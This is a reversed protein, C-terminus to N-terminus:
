GNAAIAPAAGETMPVELVFTTGIGESSFAITASLQEALLRISRFGLHGDRAPDFGDPLGVGDDEVEIVLDPGERRCSVRLRGAVGAPHAYKMSNTVVESVIVAINFAQRADVECDAGAAFELRTDAGMSLATVLGATVERLYTTINIRENSDPQALQRHLRGISEIQAELGGLFLGIEKGSIPGPRKRLREGHLRVLSAVMALHNAIRHNAEAAADFKADPRPTSSPMHLLM